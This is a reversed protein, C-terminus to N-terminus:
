LVLINGEAVSTTPDATDSAGPQTDYIIHGAANKIQYRM